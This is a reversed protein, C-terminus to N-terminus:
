AFRCQLLVVAFLVVDAQLRGVVVILRDDDGFAHDLPDHDTHNSRTSSSPTITIPSPAFSIRERDGFAMVQAKFSRVGPDPIAAQSCEVSPTHVGPNKTSTLSSADLCGRWSDAHASEHHPKKNLSFYRLLTSHHTSDEIGVM